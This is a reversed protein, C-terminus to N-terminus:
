GCSKRAEIFGQSFEERATIQQPLDGSMRSVRRGNLERFRLEHVSFFFRDVLDIFRSSFIFSGYILLGKEM